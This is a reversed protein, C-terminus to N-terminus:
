QMINYRTCGVPTPNSSVVKTTISLLQMHLQLDLWWVIVVVFAQSYKPVPHFRLIQLDLIYVYEFIPFVVSHILCDKSYISLINYSLRVVFYNSQFSKM